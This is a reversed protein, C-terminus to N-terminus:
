GKGLGLGFGNSKADENDMSKAAGKGRAKIEDSRLLSSPLAFALKFHEYGANKCESIIDLLELDFKIVSHVASMDDPMEAGGDFGGGSQSKGFEGALFLSNPDVTDSGVSFTVDTSDNENVEPTLPAYSQSDGITRHFQRVIVPGADSEKVLVAHVNRATATVGLVHQEVTNRKM